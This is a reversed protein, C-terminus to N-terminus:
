GSTADERIQRFCNPLDHRIEQKGIRLNLYDDNGAINKMTYGGKSTKSIDM